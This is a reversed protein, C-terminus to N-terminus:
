NGTEGPRLTGVYPPHCAAHVPFTLTGAGVCTITHLYAGSARMATLHRTLLCHRGSFRDLGREREREREREGWPSERERM